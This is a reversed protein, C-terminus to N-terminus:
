EELDDIHTILDLDTLLPELEETRDLANEQDDMDGTLEALSPVNSTHCLPSVEDSYFTIDEQLFAKPPASVRTPDVEDKDTAVLRVRKGVRSASSPSTELVSGEDETVLDKNTDFDEIIAQKQKCHRYVYWYM